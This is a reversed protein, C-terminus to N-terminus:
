EVKGRCREWNKIASSDSELGKSMVSRGGCGKRRFMFWFGCNKDDRKDCGDIFDKKKTQIFTEKDLNSYMDNQREREKM